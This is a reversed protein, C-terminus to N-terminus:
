LFSRRYRERSPCLLPDYGFSACIATRWKNLSLFFHHKEKSIAKHLKKDTDRHRAYLGGYRIMKFHKEPIHRILRKIFDIAPITEQVYQEDEHRNYHFTVQRGDYHNIRSTAIVPRGLYRGIYKIVTKQDCKNPKDYVYFGHKHESYCLAKVTKFSPDLKQQLLDLLATRFANRLFTYDFYHINRWFGDDSFGGESILCNIHPNWKLDRGFTHLVMIFGPTFNKSKNTKFFMRSVVSNVAHFLCDLLSRDKLFFAFIKMLPLSVIVIDSLLSNLLCLLRASCLTNIEAPLAFVATAAFLSSNLTTAILVPM